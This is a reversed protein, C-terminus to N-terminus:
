KKIQNKYIFVGLYILILLFVAFVVIFTIYDMVYELRIGQNIIPILFCVLFGLIIIFAIKERTLQIFKKM